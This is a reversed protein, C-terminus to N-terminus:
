HEVPGLSSLWGHDVLVTCSACAFVLKAYWFLELALSFAFALSIYLAPMIHDLICSFCLSGFFLFSFLPLFF